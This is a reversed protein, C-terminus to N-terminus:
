CHVLPLQDLRENKDFKNYFDIPKLNKSNSIKYEFKQLFSVIKGDDLKYKIKAIIKAKKIDASSKLTKAYLPTNVAFITFLLIIILKKM